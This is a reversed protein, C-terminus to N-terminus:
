LIVHAYTTCFDTPAMFSILVVSCIHHTHKHKYLHLVPFFCSLSIYCASLREGERCFFWPHRSKEFKFVRDTQCVWRYKMSCEPAGVTLVLLSTMHRELGGWLLNSHCNDPMFYLYSLLMATLSSCKRPKKWFNFLFDWCIYPADSNLRYISLYSNKDMDVCLIVKRGGPTAGDFCYFYFFIYNSSTRCYHLIM